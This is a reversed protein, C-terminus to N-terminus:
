RATERISMETRIRSVVEDMDEDYRVVFLRIGNKTCLAAKWEDLERRKRL